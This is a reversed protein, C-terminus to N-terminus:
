STKRKVEIVFKNWATQDEPIKRHKFFMNIQEPGVVNFEDKLYKEIVGVTTNAKDMLKLFDPDPMWYKKTMSPASEEEGTLSFDNEADRGAAAEDLADVQDEQDESTEGPADQPTEAMMEATEDDMVTGPSGEPEAEDYIDLGAKAAQEEKEQEEVGEEYGDQTEPYFEPQDEEEIETPDPQYALLRRAEEEINEIRLGAQKRALLIKFGEERLQDLTGKYELGVVYITQIRGDIPTSVTKPAIVLSLPLGLLVGAQSKIFVLSSMIGTISNFSTTRFKWVSGVTEAGEILVNLCGNMKCKEKGDYTPDKRECPCDVNYYGAPEGESARLAKEGDGHCWRIKGKYCSYQTPFILSINDYLLRVPIETPKKGYREHLAEDLLYNDDEGRELTTILFHTLKVPLQYDRGSGRAKRTEGKRGIKIKGREMLAPILGKIMLGEQEQEDAEQEDVAKEESM